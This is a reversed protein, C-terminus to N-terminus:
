ETRRSVYQWVLAVLLASSKAGRRTGAMLIFSGQSFLILHEKTLYVAAQHEGLKLCGRLPTAIPPRQFVQAGLTVGHGM